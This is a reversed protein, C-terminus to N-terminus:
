DLYLVLRSVRLGLRELEEINSNYVQNGQYRALVDGPANSAPSLVAYFQKERSAFAGGRWSSVVGGYAWGFGYFAVPGRNAKILEGLPMGVTLGQQTFWASNPKDFYLAKVKTRADDAWTIRVEDNDGAFLVTCPEEGEPLKVSARGVNSGGYIQVLDAESTKLRIAGAQRGPALTRDEAPSAAPQAAPGRMRAAPDGPAPQQKGVMDVFGPQMFRVGGEHVWGMIGNQTKILIWPEYFRQGRLTFESKRITRQYLYEATEGEKLSAVQPMDKGPQVKVILNDVWAQVQNPRSLENFEASIDQIGQAIQEAGPAAGGPAAGGQPPPQCGWALVILAAAAALPIGRM